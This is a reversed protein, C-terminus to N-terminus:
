YQNTYKYLKYGAAECVDIAEKIADAARNWKSPDYTTSFLAQGDHNVLGTYDINGNFLPSAATILVEAVLALVISRTFRGLEAVENIIRVPLNPAAEDLLEVIYNICEDSSNRKLQVEDVGASIPLNEKILPIPGYLRFLY